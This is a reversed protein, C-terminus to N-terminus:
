VMAVGMTRKYGYVVKSLFRTILAIYHLCSNKIVEYM